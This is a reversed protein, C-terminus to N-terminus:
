AGGGSNLTLQQLQGIIELKGRAAAQRERAAALKGSLEAIEADAAKMEAMAQEILPDLQIIADKPAVPQRAPPVLPPRPSASMPKSPM